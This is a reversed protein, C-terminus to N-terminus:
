TWNDILSLSSGTRDDQLRTVRWRADAGVRFLHPIRIGLGVTWCISLQDLVRRPAAAPPFRSVRGGNDGQMQFRHKALDIGITSVESM